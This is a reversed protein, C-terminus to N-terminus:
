SRGRWTDIPSVMTTSLERTLPLGLDAFSIQCTVTVSVTAPVGVPLEFGSTDVTIDLSTCGLGQDALTTLAVGAAQAQAQTGTRSISAARAADHAAISVASYATESRGNVIAVVALLVLVPLLIALEISVSGRDGRRPYLLRYRHATASRRKGLRTANRM